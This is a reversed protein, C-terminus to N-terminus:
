KVYEAALGGYGDLWTKSSSFNGKINIKAMGKSVVNIKQANLELDIVGDGKIFINVQKACGIPQESILNADDLVTINELDRAELYYIVNRDTFLSQKKGIILENGKM